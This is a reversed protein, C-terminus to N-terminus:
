RNRKFVVRQKTHYWYAITREELSWFVFVAVIAGIKSLVQVVKPVPITVTLGFAFATLSALLALFVTLYAFQLNTYFRLYICVQSYEQVYSNKDDQKSGTDAM